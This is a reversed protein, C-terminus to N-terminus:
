NYIKIFYQDNIITICLKIKLFLYNKKKISSFPRFVSLFYVFQKIRLITFVHLVLNTTLLKIYQLNNLKSYFIYLDFINYHM